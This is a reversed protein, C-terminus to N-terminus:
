SKCPAIDNRKLCTADSLGTRKARQYEDLVTFFGQADTDGEAADEYLKAVLRGSWHLAQTEHM